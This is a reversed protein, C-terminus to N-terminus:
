SAPEADPAPEAPAAPPELAEVSSTANGLDAVAQNLADLDLGPNAQQLAALEAQVAAVAAAIRAVDAEISQAAANIEDQQSMLTELKKDIADLRAALCPDQPPHFHFHHGDAVGM